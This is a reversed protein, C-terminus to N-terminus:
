IRPGVGITLSTQEPSVNKGAVNKQYAIEVYRSTLPDSRLEFRATLRGLFEARPDLSLISIQAARVYPSRYYEVPERSRQANAPALPYLSSALSLFVLTRLKRKM